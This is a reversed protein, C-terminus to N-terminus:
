VLEFSLAVVFALNLIITCWFLRQFPQKITKHRLLQQAFLASVWGGILSLLHLTRESIRWHGRRAAWKDYAYTLFTLLTIVLFYFLYILLM